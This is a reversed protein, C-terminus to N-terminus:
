QLKGYYQMLVYLYISIYIHSLALLPAFPLDSKQSDTFDTELVKDQQQKTHANMIPWYWLPFLMLELDPAAPSINIKSLLLAVSNLGQSHVHEHHTSKISKNMYMVFWLMVETVLKYLLYTPIKRGTVRYPSILAIWNTYLLYWKVCHKYCQNDNRKSKPTLLELINRPQVNCTNFHKMVLM